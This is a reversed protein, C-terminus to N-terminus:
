RTTSGSTQARLPPVQHYTPCCELLSTRPAPCDLTTAEAELSKGPIHVCAHQASLRPGPLRQVQPWSLRSGRRRTSLSPDTPIQRATLPLLGGVASPGAEAQSANM